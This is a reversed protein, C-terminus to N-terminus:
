VKLIITLTQGSVYINSIFLFFASQQPSKGSETTHNLIILIHIPAKPYLDHFALFNENEAVTNNPM